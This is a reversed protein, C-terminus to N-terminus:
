TSTEERLKRLEDELEPHNDLLRMLALKDNSPSYPVEVESGDKEVIVPRAWDKPATRWLFELSTRADKGEGALDHILKVHYTRAKARACSASEYLDAYISPVKAAIDAEGRELWHYYTGEAVENALVADKLYNGEKVLALIDEMLKTTLRTPRGRKRKSL